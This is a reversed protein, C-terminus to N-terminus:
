LTQIQAAIAENELVRPKIPICPHGACVMWAPMDKTVVSRAGVVCGEGITVGPHVFSEAAVWVNDKIVIPKTILPFGPKTYDHTGACLHTGQSIITRKGITIKGQSYLIVANAVGCEDGLELNWPAWIKAGPYVHVGRGVTAGFIRLVWARWNHFPNPTYRFLLMYTINWIVRAVRNRLSFSPGTITNKNHM